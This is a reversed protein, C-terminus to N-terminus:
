RFLADREPRSPRLNSDERAYWNASRAGEAVLNFPSKYNPVIKEGEITCNWALANLFRARQEDNQSLYLSPARNLLELTSAVDDASREHIDEEMMEAECKLRFDEQSWKREMEQWLDEGIRGDLKDEYAAERRGAIKERRRALEDSRQLRNDERDLQRGRMLKLLDTVQETTLHIGEVVSVLREGLRDERVYPQPCPGRSQTCRYYAYKRQAMGATIQCGCYACILLGRYPFSRSTQIHPHGGSHLREQVREFLATPVISEHKGDYVKGAWRIAGCYVPNSLLKHLAGKRLMGGQRTRLGQTAAWESLESLSMRTRAYTEFVRRVIPARDPDPAIGAKPINLYGTPAYSPWLGSKAKTEMGLHVREGLQQSFYRSIGAQIVGVLKGTANEPLGETASIITVWPMEDLEAYDSMNRALRDIKYVLVAAVDKQRKLLQVMRRFEPRGPKFASESEVFEQVIELDHSKAYDGLVQRQAPISHGYTAQETTSVRIYAVVRRRM